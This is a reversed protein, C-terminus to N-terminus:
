SATMAEAPLSLAVRVLNRMMERLSVAAFQYELSGDPHM